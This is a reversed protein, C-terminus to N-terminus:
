SENEVECFKFNFHITTPNSDGKLSLHFLRANFNGMPTSLTNVSGLLARMTLYQMIAREGSYVTEGSIIRPNKGLSQVKPASIPSSFVKINEEDTLALTKEDCFFTYDGFSLTQM